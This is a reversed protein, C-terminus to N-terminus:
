RYADRLEQRYRAMYWRMYAARCMGRARAPRGCCACILGRPGTAREFTESARWRLYCRNCRGRSHIPWEGCELCMMM